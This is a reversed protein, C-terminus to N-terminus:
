VLRPTPPVPPNMPGTSLAVTARSPAPEQYIVRAGPYGHAVVIVGGSVRRTDGHFVHVANLRAGKRRGQRMFQAKDPGIEFRAALQAVLVHPATKLPHAIDIRNM